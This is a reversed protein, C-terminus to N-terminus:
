CDGDGGGTRILVSNSSVPLNNRLNTPIPEDLLLNMEQRLHPVIQEM